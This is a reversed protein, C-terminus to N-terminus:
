PRKATTPQRKNSRTATIAPKTAPEPSYFCLRLRWVDPYWAPDPANDALEIKWARRLAVKDATAVRFGNRQFREAWEPLTLFSRMNKLVNPKNMAWPAADPTISGMIVGVRCVRRLESIAQDLDAEPLYCLTTDYIFDFSRDAFPLARVDGLLNRRKWDPKTKGHMYPSNEVGWADIGWRKFRPLTMGNASGCDLLKFPPFHNWIAWIHDIVWFEDFYEKFATEYNADAGYRDHYSQPLYNAGNLESSKAESNAAKARVRACIHGAVFDASQMAGNLTSDFLYDGVVYM